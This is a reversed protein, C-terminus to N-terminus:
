VEQRKRRKFEGWLAQAERIDNQQGRKTGGGLLFILEAGDMGFYVRYGPGFNIRFELVGQGVSRVNSSNGEELRAIASRVRQAASNDLDAYWRRFPVRGRQDVYAIIEPVTVCINGNQPHYPCSGVDRPLRPPPSHAM